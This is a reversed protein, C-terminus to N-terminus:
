IALQAKVAEAIMKMKDTSRVEGVCNILTSKAITTIQEALVMSDYRLGVCDCVSLHTHAPLHPKKMRSTMPLVTVTDAFINAKDNSFILVPREGDQVSTGEHEGLDAFWIQGRRIKREDKPERMYRVRIPKVHIKKRRNKRGVNESREFGILGVFILLCFAGSPNEGRPAQKKDTRNEEPGSGVREHYWYLVDM